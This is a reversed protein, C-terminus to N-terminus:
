NELEDYGQEDYYDDIDLYVIEDLYHFQTKLLLSDNNSKNKLFTIFSVAFLHLFGVDNKKDFCSCKTCPLFLNNKM